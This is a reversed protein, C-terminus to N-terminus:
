VNVFFNIEAFRPYFYSDKLTFNSLTDILLSYTKVPIQSHPIFKLDSGIHSLQSVQNWGAVYWLQTDQEWTEM